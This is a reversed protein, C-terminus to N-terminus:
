RTRDAFSKGRGRTRGGAAADESVAEAGLKKITNLHHGLFAWKRRTYAVQRARRTIRSWAVTSVEEDFLGEESSADDEERSVRRCSCCPGM